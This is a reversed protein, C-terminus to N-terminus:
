PVVPVPPMGAPACCGNCEGCAPQCCPTCCEARRCRWRWGGCCGSSTLLLVVVACVTCLRGMVSM